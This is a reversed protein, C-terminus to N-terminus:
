RCFWRGAPVIGLRGQSTPCSKEKATHDAEDKRQTCLLVVVLGLRGYRQAHLSVSSLIHSDKCFTGHGVQQVADVLLVVDGVNHRVRAADALVALVAPLLVLRGTQTRAEGADCSKECPEPKQDSRPRQESKLSRIM